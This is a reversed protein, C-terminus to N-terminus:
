WMLLFTGKIKTDTLETVTLTGFPVYSPCLSSNVSNYMMSVDPSTYTAFGSYSNTTALSYTGTATLDYVQFAFKQGKADSAIIHLISNTYNISYESVIFAKGEITATLLGAAPIPTEDENPPSCSVIITAFIAMLLLNKMKKNKNIQFKKL